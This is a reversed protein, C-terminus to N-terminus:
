PTEKPAAHWGCIKVGQSPDDENVPGVYLRWARKESVCSMLAFRLEKLLKEVLRFDEAENPNPPISM